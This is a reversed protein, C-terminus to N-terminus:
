DIYKRWANHKRLTIPIRIYLVILPILYIITLLWNDIKPIFMKILKDLIQIYIAFLIMSLVIGMQIENCHEECYTSEGTM